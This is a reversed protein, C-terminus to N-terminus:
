FLIFFILASPTHLHGNGAGDISEIAVAYGIMAVMMMYYIGKSM